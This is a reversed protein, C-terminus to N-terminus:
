LSKIFSHLGEKTKGIANGIKSHIKELMGDVKGDELTLDEDTLEPFKEMLKNKKTEWIEKELFYEKVAAQKEQNAVQKEQNEIQKEQNEIQEAKKM